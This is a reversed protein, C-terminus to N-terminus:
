RFPFCCEWRLAAPSIVSRSIRNGSSSLWFARSVTAPPSPASIFGPENLKHYRHTLTRLVLFLVIGELGAEYLESPHRPQPGGNPFVMGWPVDTVRGYLEGNIFNALRGLLLGFPASAAVVDVLQWVPIKRIRAFAVMAVATGLLGGHFSMGGHWLKIIEAPDAAFRPLDYFLVYGTRGGLVVGLAGYVIFDDVDRVSISPHAPGGPRRGAVLRRAYWWGLLLGVIYALSYWRIAFPGLEVFVPDITPFPIVYFPM